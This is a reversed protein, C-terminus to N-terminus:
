GLVSKAYTGHGRGRFGPKPINSLFITLRSGPLSPFIRQSWLCSPLSTWRSYTLHFFSLFHRLTKGALKPGSTGDPSPMVQGDVRNLRDTSVRRRNPQTSIANVRHAEVSSWNAPAKRSITARSLYTASGRFAQYPLPSCCACAYRPM